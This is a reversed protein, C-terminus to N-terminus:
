SCQNYAFSKSFLLSFILLYSFYLCFIHTSYEYDFSIVALHDSLYLYAFSCSEVNIWIDCKSFSFTQYDRTYNLKPFYNNEYAVPLLTFQSLMYPSNFPLLILIFFAWM